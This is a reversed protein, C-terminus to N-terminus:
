QHLGRMMLRDAIAENVAAPAELIFGHGAEIAVETMEHRPMPTAGTRRSAVVASPSPTAPPATGPFSTTSTTTFSRSWEPRQTLPLTTWNLRSRCIDRTLLSDKLCRKSSTAMAADVGKGDVGLLAIGLKALRGELHEDM